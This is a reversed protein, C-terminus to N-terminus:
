RWGNPVGHSTATIVAPAAQTIGTIPSYVIPETEWRIIQSFTDGQIISLDLKAAM